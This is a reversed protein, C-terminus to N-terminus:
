LTSMMKICQIESKGVARMRREMEMYNGQAVAPQMLRAASGM